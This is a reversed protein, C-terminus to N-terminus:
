HFEEGIGALRLKRMLPGVTLGQVLISFAVVVYTRTVIRETAGRAAHESEMLSLALAVSIGGRLGAWTLVKVAHPTFDRGPRLMAVVGGVCLWRALLVLPVMCLGALLYDGRLSVVLVELGILVFLVANLMEDVLEWFLDLHEATVESMAFARGTNGILLGAVVMALPGSVHLAHALAYGGTVTALTILVETKYDDIRWLMAFAALGLGLGLVVGGLVEVAFLEGVDALTNHSQGETEHATDTKAVALVAQNEQTEQMGPTHQITQTTPTEPQGPTPPTPPHGGIGAVSLLAMFVVVGVGDNFLSEGALKTELSKPAGVKKMIALVSIPDTPAILAGFIFCYILPLEVDLLQTVGFTAGGVIVTTLAVGGTALLAVIVTQRRLDSLQVHLSGAFLLFGLMGQMLAQNFDVADILRHSWAGIGWGPAVYREILLAALAALLALLMLGITTPLRLFRHNIWALAAALALLIGSVDLLEM